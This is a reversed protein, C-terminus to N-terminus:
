AIFASHLRDQGSRRLHVSGGQALTGGLQGYQEDALDGPRGCLVDIMERPHTATATEAQRIKEAVSDIPTSDRAGWSHSLALLGYIIPGLFERFPAVLVNRSSASSRLPM